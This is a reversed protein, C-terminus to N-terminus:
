LWVPPQMTYVSGALVVLLQTGVPITESSDIQPVTCAVTQGTNLKVQYSNGTGSVITGIYGPDGTPAPM